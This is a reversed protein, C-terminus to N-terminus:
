CIEQWEKELNTLLLDPIAIQWKNQQIQIGKANAKCLPIPPIMQSVCYM